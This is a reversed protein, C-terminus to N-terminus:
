LRFLVYQTLVSVEEMLVLNIIMWLELGAEVAAIESSNIKDIISNTIVINCYQSTNHANNIVRIRVNPFSANLYFIYMFLCICM